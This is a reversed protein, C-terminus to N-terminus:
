TLLKSHFFICIYSCNKPYKIEKKNFHYHNEVSITWIIDVGLEKLQQIISFDSYGYLQVLDIGTELVIKKIEEFDQKVFVGVARCNNKKIIKAFEKAKEISGIFRTSHKYFMLGIMDVNEYLVSILENRQTIGCIKVPIM